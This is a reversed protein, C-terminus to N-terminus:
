NPSKHFYRFLYKIMQFLNLKRHSLPKMTSKSIANFYKLRETNSLILTRDETIDPNEVTTTDDSSYTMMPSHTQASMGHIILRMCFPSTDQKM